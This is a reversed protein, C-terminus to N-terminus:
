VFDELSLKVDAPIDRKLRRGLVLERESWALGDGPCKLVLM